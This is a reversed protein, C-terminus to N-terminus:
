APAATGEQYSEARVQTLVVVALAMLAALVLFAVSYSRTVDVIRGFVPPSVMIGLYSATLNLGAATASRERGAIEAVFTINVGNWGIASIGLVIMLGAIAWEPLGAPLWALLLLAAVTTVGIIGLVVKRRGGFVVDSVIGWGIRAVVGSFQALALLSGALLITLGLAEQLYLVLFTITSLQVAAYLFSTIGLLQFGRHRLLELMSGTRASGASTRAAYEAPSERYSVLAFVAVVFVAATVAMLGGQWGFALAIPPLAAATITGALAVGTQKVSMAIARIRQPFWFMIARTTPPLALGNGIGSLFLCILLLWFTGSIAALGAFLSLILLGGVFLKRVGFRDSLGGGWSMSIFAGGFVASSLWGVQTRDLSLADQLFPALPAIAQNGFSAATQVALSAALIVWAYPVLRETPSSIAAAKVPWVM